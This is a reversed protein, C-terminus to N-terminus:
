DALSRVIIYAALVALGFGVAFGIAVKKGTSANRGKVQAVEDYRLTVDAGTKAETLTFTDAAVSALHGKLKRNDRLKLQVQAARGTGFQALSAKIQEARPVAQKGDACTAANLVPLLLTVILFRAFTHKLM